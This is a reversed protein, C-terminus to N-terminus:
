PYVQGEVPECHQLLGLHYGRTGPQGKKNVRVGYVDVGGAISIRAQSIQWLRGYRRVRTGIIASHVGELIAEARKRLDDGQRKLDAIEQLASRSNNGRMMDFTAARATMDMAAGIPEHVFDAM